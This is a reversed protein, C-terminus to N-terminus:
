PQLIVMTKGSGNQNVYINIGRRNDMVREGRLNFHEGSTKYINSKNANSITRRSIPNRVATSNCPSMTCTDTCWFRGSRECIDKTIVSDIPVLSCKNNVWFRGANECEQQTYSVVGEKITGTWGSGAYNLTAPDKGCYGWDGTFSKGDISFKFALPGSWSNEPGCASSNNYERWWGHLTDGSLTGTLIGGDYMYEGTVQNGDQWFTMVNWNTEWVTNNLNIAFASM